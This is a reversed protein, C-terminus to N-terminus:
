SLPTTSTGVPFGTIVNSLPTAQKIYCIKNASDYNYWDCNDKICRQQCDTESLQPINTDSIDFGVIDVNNMKVWPPCNTTGTPNDQVRFGTVINAKTGSNKLWCNNNSTDFNYWYCGNTSKCSQQCAPETSNAIPMNAMNFGAIDKGVLRTFTPCAPPVPVTGGTGSTGGTGGSNSSKKPKIYLFYVLFLGVIIVLVVVIQIVIALLKRDVM